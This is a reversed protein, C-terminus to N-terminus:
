SGSPGTSTGADQTERENQAAVDNQREATNATASGTNPASVNNPPDRGRRREDLPTAPQEPAAYRGDGAFTEHGYPAGLNADSDGYGGRAANYPYNQQPTAGSPQAYDAPNYPPYDAAQQQAPTAYAPDAYVNEPATPPPPFYTSGPYTQQANYGANQQPPLYGSPPDDYPGPSPAYGNDYGEDERGIM